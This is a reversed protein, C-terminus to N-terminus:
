SAESAAIPVSLTLARETQAATITDLLSMLVDKTSKAQKHAKTHAAQNVLAIDLFSVAYAIARQLDTDNVIEIMLPDSPFVWVPTAKRCWDQKAGISGDLMLMTSRGDEGANTIVDTVVHRSPRTEPHYPNTFEVRDGRVFTM